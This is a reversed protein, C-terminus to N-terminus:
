VGGQTIFSSAAAAHLEEQQAQVWRKAEQGSFGNTGPSLQSNGTSNGRTVVTTDSRDLEQTFLAYTTALLVLGGILFLGGYILTLRARLPIRRPLAFRFKM